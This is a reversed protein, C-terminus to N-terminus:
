KRRFPNFGKKPKSSGDTRDDIENSDNYLNNKAKATRDRQENTREREDSLMRKNKDIWYNRKNYESEERRSERQQRKQEKIAKKGGKKTTLDVMDENLKKKIYNKMFGIRVMKEICNEGEKVISNMYNLIFTTTEKIVQKKGDPDETRALRETADDVTTKCSNYADEIQKKWGTMYKDGTRCIGFMAALTITKKGVKALEDKQSNINNKVENMGIQGSAAKKLLDVSSAIGNNVINLFANPDQEMEVRENGKSEDVETGFLAGKLTKAVSQLGKIITGILSGILGILGGSSKSEAETFLDLGLVSEEYRAIAYSFQRDCEKHIKLFEYDMSEIFLAYDM